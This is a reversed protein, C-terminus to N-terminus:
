HAWIRSLIENQSILIKNQSKPDKKPGHSETM